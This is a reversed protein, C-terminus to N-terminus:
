SMLYSYRFTNDSFNQKKGGFVRNKEIQPLKKDEGEWKTIYVITM